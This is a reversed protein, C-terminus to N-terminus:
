NIVTVKGVKRGKGNNSTTWLLYVGTKVKEGKLDKGNWVATGGNSTTKYVLNGAMDTVKVDSNYLIGQITIMGDFSPLVPNPFVIVDSYEPDEYSADTRFSMLGDATVIFLEGTKHNFSMDLIENSILPSNSTNFEHVIELGDPSLCFIGSGATGIWKRNGGDVEIDTIYTKGLMYETLGEFPIKIRQVNYAGPGADFVNQSNYLIGFGESTGIWIRNDFDVALATVDNSPLAGTSAGDTLYKFKDDSPNDPTGNDTFAVVGFDPVTIWKNKNYDIFVRGTYRMKMTTGINFSRWVGDNGLMKLPANSFANLLWLNGEEDYQVDTVSIHGAGGSLELISNNENYTETIATGDKSIHLGYPSKSGLAFGGEQKPNFSGSSIDWIDKNLMVSQNFRDFLKWEEDKWTYAGASNYQNGYKSMTGGTVIIRDDLGNVSFFSNKPPGQAPVRKNDYNHKFKILGSNVDALFYYGGQFAVSKIMKFGPDSFNFFIDSYALQDDLFIVGATGTVALRNGMIKINYAELNEVSADVRELRSPTVRFLTDGEYVEYKKLLFLENNFNVMREYSQDAATLTHAPYKKWYSTDALATNGSYAKYINVPTLAYLSDGKLAVDRIAENNFNPYYTDIVENKVPNILVMGFDTCVFLKGQIYRFQNIKKSGQINALKIAPINVRKGKVIKDINGNKYGVWFANNVEDYFLASLNIDSLGSVVSWYFVESSEVDYEVMGSPFAIYVTGNGAAVDLPETPSIHLRWQGTGIQATVAVSCFLTFFFFIFTKM